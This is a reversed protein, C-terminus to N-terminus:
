MNWCLKVVSQDITLAAPKIMASGAITNKM